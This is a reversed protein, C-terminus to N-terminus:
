RTEVQEIESHDYSSMSFLPDTNVSTSHQTQSNKNYKDERFDRMAKFRLDDTYGGAEPDIDPVCTQGELMSVVESMIPRITPSGNTCLLAVKVMIEAEEKNIESGLKEDFLEEYNNSKQLQCAWDLLCIYNDRPIYSTNNKGSVIELALVGFSYVDAKDSLFGWLAYEPAMYGITGAVRTSVHTQGDEHLRALGFDAIKPNLDKDLLVNTAKIDRHVIKLRSEEHLFALGRAIGVCIKFRTPWDLTLKSNNLGFLANSLSNNELYEYVLMLQDGDISCGHLKVLNPHQLCSIVGVENLFERNGQRSESSLQKVAVVTGDSLTGKYVPGFGGEGIKNAASFNSTASKLQKLSFSITRLEMGQFDKDKRKNHKLSRKWWIIALVLVLLVSCSAGVAIGVYVITKKKGGASCTKFYPEVSVASVLPGYVGRRPFRTTGKGAWYFRIELINNTVSANFPIVVPNGMGRSEDEINFNKKVLRGQIYIDFIRKGLSRYTTDNTFQLEAFHLKVAYEGNELCHTFYVLSLPSLRATAYVSSSLNTATYIYRTNQFINDDMFDGTSSFGWNTNSIHLLSAGGDVNADGEYLVDKNSETVRVDDGGSNVHMSCGYRPCKIDNSCALIDQLPNGTSSSKFLNIYTNTNQRCSPRDPGQWTFNNYSLDISAGNLLLSDPIDGSLMNSTLFVFRLSRGIINPSIGGVLRNFSADLTELERIMWVYPPIEGSINCNRLVLRILGTANNLPPFGQAPGAMDSLRLDTLDELLSINSPIPGELGSAVMELRTLHRWNQIFDPIRGSFNNDNIRFNTLNRLEGLAAPLTGTFQNSSLILSKLNFLRGLQSPVTGSLYNAELDLKELTTINALEPPIKGTVRNGLLSIEQLQTMGWEPPITGNLYNYAFDISKLYPLKMLEPSLVGPLSYFKMTIRVVHCDSNNTTSCDCGTSANAEQSLKPVESILDLNCTDGNFSWSTAGMTTLISNVAVVEQQPVVSESTRLLMFLNLCLILMLLLERKTTEM